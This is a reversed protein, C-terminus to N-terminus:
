WGGGWLGHTGNFDWRVPSLSLTSTRPIEKRVGRKNSMRGWEVAAPLEKVKFIHREEAM